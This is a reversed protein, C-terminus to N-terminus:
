KAFRAAVNLDGYYRQADDYASEGKFTKRRGKAPIVVYVPLGYQTFAAEKLVNGMFTDLVM